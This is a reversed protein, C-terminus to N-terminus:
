EFILERVIRAKDKYSEKDKNFLASTGLVYTDINRNKLELITNKNICGDVEIVPKKDFSKMYENLEDIKNLVSYNFKQGAFGPNVTMMLVMDIRKLYPKISEISTEPSIALSVKIGKKRIREIDADVNKSAEIHFSMFEPKLYSYMDIYKPVDVTALHIDLPISTAKSIAELVYPGMALNNVFVGDMVDCHLLEISAEELRKLEIALELQNACMISAALKMNSLGKYFM